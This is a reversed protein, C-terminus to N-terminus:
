LGNIKAKIQQGFVTKITCEGEPRGQKDKQGEFDAVIAQVYTKDLDLQQVKPQSATALSIAHDCWEQVRVKPKYGRIILSPLDPHNRPYTKVQEVGAQCIFFTQPENQIFNMGGFLQKADSRAIVIARGDFTNDKESFDGQVVISDKYFTKYKLQKPNIFGDM